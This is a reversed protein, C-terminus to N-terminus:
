FPPQPATRAVVLLPVFFLAHQPAAFPAPLFPDRAQPIGEPACRFDAFCEGLLAAHLDCRLAFLLAEEKMERAQRTGKVGASSSM